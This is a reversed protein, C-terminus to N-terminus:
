YFRIVSLAPLLIKVIEWGIMRSRDTKDYYFEKAVYLGMTAACGTGILTSRTLAVIGSQKWSLSSCFFEGMPLLCYSSIPTIYFFHRFFVFFCIFTAITAYFTFSLFCHVNCTAICRNVLFCHHFRDSFHLLCIPCKSTSNDSMPRVAAVLYIALQ